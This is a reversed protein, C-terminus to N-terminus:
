DLEPVGIQSRIMEDKLAAKGGRLVRTRLLGPRAAKKSVPGFTADLAKSKPVKDGLESAVATWDFLNEM